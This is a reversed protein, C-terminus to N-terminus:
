PPPIWPAPAAGRELVWFRRTAVDTWDSASGDPWIVRIQSTDARGLGFHLWGTQGGGHGGGVTVERSWTRGDARVEVWAGVARRNGAPQRVELQLWAGTDATRNHQIELPAQRNVVVIDLRGDLDLDVLAAGRGRTMSAVGADAAAESSRGDPQGMLLNNPDRMAAVDMAEVNGKAIFLDTIGDNDVDGFEAHWGTSPRGDDGVHPVHATIGVEFATDRYTPSEPGAALVRMKQDGMSTLVIEPYGDGDVDHSAIGMGWIRLRNWGDDRGYLRTEGGAIRWLQEEGEAGYYHRDNSIQLDRRGSRSWDSFLMSLACHGPTLPEPSAFGAGRPSAPRVLVNDDCAEFPGDPDDRDVYNGFALTPWAMGDEWTASFATTWRDGGDFGWAENAAAFECDGTGRLLINDGARLVALDVVADGDVDLPYVGTVGTIATTDSESRRLRISGPTAENLWLTAPSDGGAAYIEPYGDGNCDFAAVGGGVYHEWGGTYAHTVGLAPAVDQFRPSDAAAVSPAILSLLSIALIRLSMAIM